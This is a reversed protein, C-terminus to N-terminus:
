DIDATNDLYRFICTIKTKQIGFDNIGQSLQGLAIPKHFPQVGPHPKSRLRQRVRGFWPQMAFAM